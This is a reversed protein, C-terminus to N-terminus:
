QIKKNLWLLFQDLLPAVYEDVLPSVHITYLIKIENHLSQLSLDSGVLTLMSDVEISIRSLTASVMIPADKGYASMFCAVLLFPLFFDRILFILTSPIIQLTAWLTNNQEKKFRLGDDYLSSVYSIVMMSM